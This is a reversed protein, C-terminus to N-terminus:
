TPEDCLVTISCATPSHSLPPRQLVKKLPINQVMDLCLRVMFALVLRVFAYGEAYKATETQFSLM